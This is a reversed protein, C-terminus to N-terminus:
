ITSSHTIKGLNWVRNFNYMKHVLNRKLKETPSLDKELLRLPQDPTSATVRARTVILDYLDLDKLATKLEADHTRM